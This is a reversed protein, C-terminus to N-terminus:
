FKLQSSIICTSPKYFKKVIKIVTGKELFKSSDDNINLAVNHIDFRLTNRM